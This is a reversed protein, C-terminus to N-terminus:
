PDRCVLLHSYLVNYNNTQVEQILNVMRLLPRVISTNVSRELHEREARTNRITEELKEREETWLHKEQQLMEVEARMPTNWLDMMEDTM